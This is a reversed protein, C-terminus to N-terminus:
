PPVSTNLNRQQSISECLIRIAEKNEDQHKSLRETLESVKDELKMLSSLEAYSGHSEKM